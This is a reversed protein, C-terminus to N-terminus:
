QALSELSDKIDDLCATLKSEDTGRVVITAGYKGNRSFPYSGISLGKFRSAIESLVSAFDGEKLYIDHSVSLIPDGKIIHELASFFMCEAIKPIGALVFVNQIKFGPAFSIPNELLVAGKPVCAMKKRAETLENGYSAIRNLAKQNLELPLEFANAIAQSTIDDHTPGIGGTTFVYDCAKRLENVHKIIPAIEDPIVRVEAM